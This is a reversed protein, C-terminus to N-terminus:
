TAVQLKCLGKENVMRHKNVVRSSLHWWVVQYAVWLTVALSHSLWSWFPHREVCRHKCGGFFPNQNAPPSWPDLIGPPAWLCSLSLFSLASHLLNRRNTWWCHFHSNEYLHGGPLHPLLRRMLLPRTQLIGRRQSNAEGEKRDVGNRNQWLVILGREGTKHPQM